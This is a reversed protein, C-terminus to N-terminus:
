FRIKYGLSIEVDGNDSQARGRVNYRYTRSGAVSLSGGEVVGEDVALYRATGTKGGGVWGVVNPWNDTVSIEPAPARTWDAETISIGDALNVQRVLGAPWGARTDDKLDEEDNVRVNELIRVAQSGLAEAIYFNREYNKKNSSIKVDVTSAQRSAFVILSLLLLILLAVNMVSGNENCIFRMLLNRTNTPNM